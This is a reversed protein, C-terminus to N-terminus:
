GGRIRVGALIVPLEGLKRIICVKNYVRRGSNQDRWALERCGDQQGLQMMFTVDAADAPVMM